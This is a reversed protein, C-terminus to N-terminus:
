GKNFSFLFLPYIFHIGSQKDFLSSALRSITTHHQCKQLRFFENAQAKEQFQTENIKTYSKDFGCQAYVKNPKLIHPFLLVGILVSRVSKSYGM